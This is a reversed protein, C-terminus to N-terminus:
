INEKNSYKIKTIETLPNSHIYYHNKNFKIVYPYRIINNYHNIIINIVNKNKHKITIYNKTNDSLTKIPMKALLCSIVFNAIVNTNTNFSLKRIFLLNPKFINKFVLTSGKNLL